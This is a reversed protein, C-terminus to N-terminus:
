TVSMEINLKTQQGNKVRMGKYDESTQGKKIHIPMATCLTPRPVKRQVLIFVQPSRSLYVDVCVCVCVCACVCV